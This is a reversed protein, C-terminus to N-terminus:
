LNKIINKLFKLVLINQNSSLVKELSNFLQFAINWGMSSFKLLGMYQSEINEMKNNKKGIETLVDGSTKFTEADELPNKM